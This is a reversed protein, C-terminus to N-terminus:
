VGPLLEEDELTDQRARVSSNSSRRSPEDDSTMFVHPKLLFSAGLAMAFLAVLLVFFAQPFTEVTAAYLQNFIIPAVIRALSHLLGIAGLMQGVREPPVHKSVAAQITASGLGGVATFVACVVFVAGSRAFVYGATGVVDSVLAARLTWIDVEDAGRNKERQQPPPLPPPSLPNEERLLRRWRQAAPRKRFLYNILPLIGVLVVVRVMSTMSIFRSSELNGWEFMYEVYMVIVTGSSMATGLIVMDIFALVLFNRRLRTTGPGTPFLIGLPALPNSTRISHLFRGIQRSFPIRSSAPGTCEPIPALAEKARAHKERALLQQRRSLSEPIVFVMFTIFFVHCGLLIYFVSILSGTWEVFYGALLPGIALGTFLCSHLYGIAVGRKSPPTCDSTYAHSLVSGATFSGTLGDFFYGLLLWQYAVTEPYKAALITIAESVIGGMACILMMRKRGYRDSLSGLKPATLSSLVGTTVNLVLSFTAVSRQVEPIFCQRNNGGPIVPTFTFDPDAASRDAFYHKCVLDIILNLKPVISGGFALTFIAYPALLFGVSPRRWWPLGAFDDDGTWGSAGPAVHTCDGHAGNGNLLGTTENAEDPDLRDEAHEPDDTLYGSGSGGAEGKRDRSSGSGEWGEPSTM